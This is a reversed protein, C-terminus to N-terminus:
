SDPDLIGTPQLGDVGAGSCQLWRLQSALTRWNNPVWYSCLIEAKKLRSLFEDTNTICEVEAQAAEQLVQQSAPSFRFTSIIKLGNTMFMRGRENWVNHTGSKATGRCDIRIPHLHCTRLTLVMTALYGM